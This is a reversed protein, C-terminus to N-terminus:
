IAVGRRSLMRCSPGAAISYLRLRSARERSEEWPLSLSVGKAKLETHVAAWDVVPREAEPVREVLPDLRREPM